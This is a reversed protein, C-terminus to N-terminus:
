HDIECLAGSKQVELEREKAYIFNPISMLQKNKKPINILSFKQWEVIIEQLLYKIRFPYNQQGQVELLPLESIKWDM